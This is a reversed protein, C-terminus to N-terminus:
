KSAMGSFNILNDIECIIRGNVSNKAVKYKCYIYTDGVLLGVELMLFLFLIPVILKRFKKGM